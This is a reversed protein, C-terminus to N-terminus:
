VRIKVALVQFNQLRGEQIYNYLYKLAICKWHYWQHLSVMLTCPEVLTVDDDM